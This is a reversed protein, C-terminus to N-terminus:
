RSNPQLLPLFANTVDLVGHYNTRISMRADEALTLGDQPQWLFVQRYIRFQAPVMVTLAAERHSLEFVNNGAYVVGVVAGVVYHM